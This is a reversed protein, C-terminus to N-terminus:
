VLAGQAPAAEARRALMGASALAFALAAIKWGVPTVAGFWSPLAAFLVGLAVVRLQEVRRAAPYGQLLAGVGTMSALITLGYIGRLDLPLGPGVAIFHSIMVVLVAYQLLAYRSVPALTGPQYRHFRTPDFPQPTTDPLPRSPPTFWAGLKARWGKAKRSQALLDAYVHLNGWVPSLSALPKRIGYVVPEEAREEVFTGFLRDWIILIGGYNCDICYDNQGHHVRHNSPTVFVRDLWGLRGVLETHVWYQYLTDMLGVVAFVTPPIGLLALPMYFAWNYLPTTASQRLATSLNYYESSHHVVHGAWMFGVEHNLRHAWYYALDYALLGVGFVWLSHEPLTVARYSEWLLVYIGFSLVRFFAGSVQSLTGLHLSTLADPVWYLRRGQKWALLAEIVMTLLFVPIAYIIPNTM